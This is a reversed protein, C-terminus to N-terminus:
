CVGKAKCTNRASQPCYSVGSAEVPAPKGAASAPPPNSVQRICDSTEQNLCATCKDQAWSATGAGLAVAVLALLGIRSAVTTM